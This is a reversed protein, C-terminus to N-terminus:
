NADFLCKSFFKLEEGKKYINILEEFDEYTIFDMINDWKEIDEVGKLINPLTDELYARNDWIDLVVDEENKITLSIDELGSDHSYRVLEFKSCSSTIKTEIFM